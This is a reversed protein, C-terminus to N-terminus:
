SWRDELAVAALVLTYFHKTLTISSDNFRQVSAAEDSTSVVDRPHISVIYTGRLSEFVLNHKQVRTWLDAQHTAPLIVVDIDGACHQVGRVERLIVLRDLAREYLTPAEQMWGDHEFPAKQAFGPEVSFFEFTGLVVIENKAQQLVALSMIELFPEDAIAKIGFAQGNGTM